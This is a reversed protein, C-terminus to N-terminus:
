RYYDYPEPTVGQIHEFPNTMWNMMPEEFATPAPLWKMGDVGPAFLYGGGDISASFDGPAGVVCWPEGDTVTIGVAQGFGDGAKGSYPKFEDVTTYDRGDETSYLAVQRSGPAACVLHYSGYPFSGDDTAVAVPFAIVRGFQADADDGYLSGGEQILDFGNEGRGYLWVAGTGEIEKEFNPDAPSGVALILGGGIAVSSGFESTRFEDDIFDPFKPEIVQQYTWRGPWDGPVETWGVYVAGQGDAAGPAGVVLVVTGNPQGEEGVGPGVAVCSGFRASADAGEVPNTGWNSSMPASSTELGRYVYAAGEGYPGIPAKAGPAGVAVYWDEGDFCCAVAAGFGDGKAAKPATLVSVEPVSGYSWVGYPPRAIIVRGPSAEDGKAGIVVTDGAIVISSGLSRVSNSTGLAHGHLIGVYGWAKRDAFYAYLAVAGGGSFAEPTAFAALRPGVACTVTAPREEKKFNIDLLTFMEVAEQSAM